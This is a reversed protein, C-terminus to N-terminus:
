WSGHWIPHVHGSHLPGRAAFTFCLGVYATCPLLFLVYYVYTYCADYQSKGTFCRSNTTLWASASTRYGLVTFLKHERAYRLIKPGLLVPKKERHQVHKQELVDIRTSDPQNPQSRVLIKMEGAWWQIYGYPQNVTNCWRVNWMLRYAPPFFSHEVFHIFVCVEHDPGHVFSLLFRRKTQFLTNSTWEVALFFRSGTQGLFRM